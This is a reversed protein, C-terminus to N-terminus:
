MSGKKNEIWKIVSKKEIRWDRSVKFAELEGSKLARKITQDSVKLFEALERPTLIDPLDDLIM